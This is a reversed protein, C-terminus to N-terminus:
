QKTPNPLQNDKKVDQAHKETLSELTDKDFYHSLINSLIKNKERLLENEHKVAELSALQNKLDIIESTNNYIIKFIFFGFYCVLTLIVTSFLLYNKSSTQRSKFNTTSKNSNLIFELFSTIMQFM